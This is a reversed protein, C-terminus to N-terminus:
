NPPLVFFFSALKVFTFRLLLVTSGWISFFFFFGLGSKHIVPVGGGPPHLNPQVGLVQQQRGQLKGCKCIAAFRLEM